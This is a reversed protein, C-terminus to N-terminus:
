ARMGAAQRELTEAAGFAKRRSLEVRYKRSRLEILAAFFRKAAVDRESLAKGANEILLDTAQQEEADARAQARLSHELHLPQLTAQLESLGSRKVSVIREIGTMKSEVDVIQLAIKNVAGQSAKGLVADACIETHQARLEALFNSASKGKEEWESIDARARAIEEDLAAIENELKADQEEVIAPAM